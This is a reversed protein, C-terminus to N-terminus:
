QNEKLIKEKNRKIKWQKDRNSIAFEVSFQSFM